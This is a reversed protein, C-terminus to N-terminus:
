VGQALINVMSGPLQLSESAVTEGTEAVKFTFPRISELLRMCERPHIHTRGIVLPHAEFTVTVRRASRITDVAGRLVALEGGEVDIKIALDGRVGLQDITTVVFGSDAQVVYRAHASADYDPRVLRGFGSFDSVACNHAEANPLRSLNLALIQFIEQNPEFAIVRHVNSARACVSASFLGIDAGCDFLTLNESERLAACFSEIHHREFEQVDRAGLCTERRGIPVTFQLQPTLPYDVTRDKWHPLMLNILLGAGRIHFRIMQRAISLLLPPRSSPNM